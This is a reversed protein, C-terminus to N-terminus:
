SVLNFLVTIQILRSKLLNCSVKAEPFLHVVDAGREYRGNLDPLIDAEHWFRVNFHVIKTTLNISIRRLGDSKQASKRILYYKGILYGTVAIFSIAGGLM